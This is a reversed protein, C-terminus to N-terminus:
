WQIPPLTHQALYANAQSFHKCGFFGHHAALPSPHAATLVLHKEEDIIPKKAQAAKGWLLFVLHEKEESLRQLVMDTFTEWGKNAHSNSANARVTLVANLLLVGQQAWPRLDGYQIISAGIDSRIEKLINRLSPPPALPPKVSFALGHAHGPTPYPDQGLIVVRTKEFSCYEFAAFLHERPPLTHETAYAHTYFAELAKYAPTNFYPQLLTQWDTTM